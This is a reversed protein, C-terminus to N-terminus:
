FPVSRPSTSRVRRESTAQRKRTARLDLVHVELGLLVDRGGELAGHAHPEARLPDLGHLLVPAVDVDRRLLEPDVKLLELNGLNGEITTKVPTSLASFNCFHTSILRYTKHRLVRDLNKNRQKRTMVMATM